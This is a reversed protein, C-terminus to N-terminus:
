EECFDEIYGCGGTLPCCRCDPRGGKCIHNGWADILAHYENFLYVDVDLNSMFYDQVRNYNVPEDILKLLRVLKRTYADVVFIPKKAGYLIIADATEKGIGPLALLEKRLSTIDKDFLENLGGNYNDLLYKCFAKIYKAKQNFFRTSKIDSIIMDEPANYLDAPTMLDDAYLKSIAPEVNKWAVNQTLIAGLAMEFDNEAPWWHRPGLYDFLSYYIDMLRTKIRKDM